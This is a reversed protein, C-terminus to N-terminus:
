EKEEKLMAFRLGGTPPCLWHCPALEEPKRLATAPVGSIRSGRPRTRFRAREVGLRLLFRLPNRPPSQAEARAQQWLDRLAKAAGGLVAAGAFPDRSSIAGATALVGMAFSYTTLSGKCKAILARLHAHQASRLLEAVANQLRLRAADAQDLSSYYGSMLEKFAAQFEVLEDRYDVLLADFDAPAMGDIWPIELDLIAVAPDSLDAGVSGAAVEALADLGPSLPLPSLGVLEAPAVFLRGDSFAQGAEEVLWQAISDPMLSAFGLIPWWQRESKSEVVTGAFAIYGWGSDIPIDLPHWHDIWRPPSLQGTYVFDVPIGALALRRYAWRMQNVHTAPILLPQVNRARNFLLRRVFNGRAWFDLAVSRSESLEKMWGLCATYSPEDASHHLDLQADEYDPNSAVM